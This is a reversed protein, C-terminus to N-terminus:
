EGTASTRPRWASMSEDLVRINSPRFTMSRNKNFEEIGTSVMWWPDDDKLKEDAFIFSFYKRIQLHRHCTMFCSVDIQSRYGEGEDERGKWPNGGRKGELRAICIVGLFHNFERLSIPSIKDRSRSANGEEIRANIKLM